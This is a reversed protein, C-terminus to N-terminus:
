EIRNPKTQPASHLETIIEFLDLPLQAVNYHTVGPIGSSMRVHWWMRNGHVRGSVHSLVRHSSWTDTRRGLRTRLETM